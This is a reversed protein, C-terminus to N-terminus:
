GGLTLLITSTIRARMVDSRNTTTERDDSNTPRAPDHRFRGVESTTSILCGDDIGV